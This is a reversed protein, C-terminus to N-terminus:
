DEGRCFFQVYAFDRESFAIEHGLYQVTRKQVHLTVPEMAATDISTQASQLLADIDAHDLASGLYGRVRIFPIDVLDIRDAEERPPVLFNRDREWESPVLVHTLRDGPRGFLSMAFGLYYSMTKRGGAISALIRVDGVDSCRQVMRFIAAMMVKSDNESRIDDLEGAVTIVSEDFVVEGYEPYARVFDNWGGAELFRQKLRKKGETTTTIRIEQPTSASGETAYASLTETLIAPSGGIVFLAVSKARAKGREQLIEEGKM